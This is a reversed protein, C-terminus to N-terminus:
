RQQWSQLRAGRPARPNFRIPTQVDHSGNTAGRAPRTSQFLLEIAEAATMEDRGARPAHISVKQIKCFSYRDTDRGARPAHISVECLFRFHRAFQRAGRPARPNFCHNGAAMILMIQRAGRPARPNFSPGLTSRAAEVRRAGRPARPNFGM